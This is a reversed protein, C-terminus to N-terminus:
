EPHPCPGPSDGHQTHDLYRANSVSITEGDHCVLLQGPQRPGIREKACGALVLVLAVLSWRRLNAFGVLNM